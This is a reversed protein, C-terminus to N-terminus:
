PEDDGGSCFCFEASQEEIAFFCCNKSERQFFHSMWLGRRMNVTIVQSDDTDGTVGDFSLLRSGRLHSEKTNRICHFLFIKVYLVVRPFFVKCVVLTLVVCTSVM